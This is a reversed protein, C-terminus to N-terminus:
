PAPRGREAFPPRRGGDPRTTDVPDGPANKGRGCSGGVTRETINAVSASHKSRKQRVTPPSVGMRVYSFGTM